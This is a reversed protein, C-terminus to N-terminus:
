AWTRHLRLKPDTRQLPRKFRFLDLGLSHQGKMQQQKQQTKNTEEDGPWAERDDEPLVIALRVRGALKLLVLQGPAEAGQEEAVGVLLLRGHLHLGGQVSSSCHVICHLSPPYSGQLQLRGQVSTSCYVTCYLTELSGHLHLGGQM